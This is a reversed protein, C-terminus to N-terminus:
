VVRLLRERVGTKYISSMMNEIWRALNESIYIADCCPQLYLNDYGRIWGTLNETINLLVM